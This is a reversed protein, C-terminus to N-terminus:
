NHIIEELPKGESADPEKIQMLYALTPAISTMDVTRDITTPQLGCGSIYLDVQTDYGYMSGSGAYRHEEEEIWGPMLNLLVDGSRRAYFSNQIRRAYGDAFYSSRLATASLAHSVGSFQMAFTAIDNQLQAPNLNREYILTHNLYLSRNRYGIVWNGSGYRVNLFGNCIVRFQRTNFQEVTPTLAESDLSESTGHDSTLVVMCEAPGVQAYLFTLFDNLDRDLRYYMDEVEISEPGYVEAIYRPSDLYINLLDPTEDQGMHYQALCQKAFGLVASNGAPTYRLRETHNRPEYRKTTTQEKSRKDSIRTRIDYQRTNQYLEKNLLQQWTPLLFSLNFGERNSRALWLPTENTYYLSTCWETSEEDVWYITGRRGGLTIASAPDLAITAVNAKPREGRLTEALTPAILHYGGHGRPGETLTVAENTTYDHWRDSVVGHMSPMAGTSLTSLTAPTLTQQFDYRAESYHIGDHMLRRFGGETFQAEYRDLDGARMSGVVIQVVLKPRNAATAAFAALLLLLTVFYRKMPM